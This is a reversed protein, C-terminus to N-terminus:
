HVAAEVTMSHPFPLINEGLRCGKCICNIAKWNAASRHEFLCLQRTRPARASIWASTREELVSQFHPFQFPSSNPNIKDPQFSLIKRTLSLSNFISLPFVIILSLVLDQYEKGQQLDLALGNLSTSSYKYQAPKLSILTLKM